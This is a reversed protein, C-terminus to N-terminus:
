KAQKQLLLQEAAALVWWHRPQVGGGIVGAM